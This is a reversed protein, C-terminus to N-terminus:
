AQYPGTPVTAARRARHRVAASSVVAGPGTGVVARAAPQQEGGGTDGAAGIAEIAEAAARAEAAGRQLLHQHANRAAQGFAKCHRLEPHAAKPRPVQSLPHM